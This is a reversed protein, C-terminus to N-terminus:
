APRQRIPQMMPLARQTLLDAPDVETVYHELNTAILVRGRGRATGPPDAHNPRIIVTPEAPLLPRNSSEAPTLLSLAELISTRHPLSHHIPFVECEAGHVAMGIQCRNLYADCVLSAALSAARDIDTPTATHSSLDLLLMIRPPSLQALERAVLDGTRASRKWDVLRLNDGSRYERVGLFEEVGGSRDIHKYGVPDTRLLSGIVHHNIRYLNPYVLIRDSRDVQLIKRVIGFPFSTSIEIHDFRLHGRRVPWCPSQAQISQHGGIHMVWGHPQGLLRPGNPNSSSAPGEHKWGSQGPGWTETIVLSFVPLWSGNTVQYRMVMSQGVVGHLPLLRNIQIQRLSYWAIGVSSILGGIMLGFGWFLLNAQTYISAGLILSTTLLYVIGGPGMTIRSSRKQSM